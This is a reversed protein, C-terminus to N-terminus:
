ETRLDYVMQGITREGKVDPNPESLQYLELAMKGEINKLAFTERNGDQDFLDIIRSPTATEELCDGAYCVEFRTYPPMNVIEGNAKWTVVGPILEGYKFMAYEGTVLCENLHTVFPSTSSSDDAKVFGSGSKERTWSTDILELTSDPNMKLLMDGYLTADKLILGCSDHKIVNLSYREFGNDVIISDGGTIVLELVYHPIDDPMKGPCASLVTSNIYTGTPFTCDATEAGPKCAFLIFPIIMVYIMGMLKNMKKM